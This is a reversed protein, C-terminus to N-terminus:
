AAQAFIHVHTLSYLFKAHIVTKALVRSSKTRARLVAVRNRFSWVNLCLCRRGEGGSQLSCCAIIADTAGRPGPRARQRSQTAIDGV